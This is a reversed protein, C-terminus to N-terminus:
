LLLKDLNIGFPYLNLEAVSLPFFIDSVSKCFILLELTFLITILIILFKRKWFIKLLEVLDIKEM